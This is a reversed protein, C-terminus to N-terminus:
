REFFNTSTTTEGPKVEAFRLPHRYLEVRDIQTTGVNTAPANLRFTGTTPTSAYGTPQVSISLAEDLYVKLQLAGADYDHDIRLSYDIGPLIQVLPANTSAIVLDDTVGDLTFALKLETGGGVYTTVTLRMAAPGAGWAWLVVHRDGAAGLQFTHVSSHNGYLHPDIVAGIADTVVVSAEEMASPPLMFRGSELYGPAGSITTWLDRSLDFTDLFDVVAVEIRESVPRALNVLRLLLARDLTGRDMVRVHSTFEDFDTVEGGIMWVDSGAVGFTAEDLLLRFNFWDTIEVSRGTLLRVWEEVGEPTGRKNWLPVALSILRRLANESLGDTIYNLDNTFGVSHKLYQLLDARVTAPDDLQALSRISDLRQKFLASAGRLLRKLLLTSKDADRVPKILMAYLSPVGPEVFEAFDDIVVVPAPASQGGGLGGIVFSNGVGLM